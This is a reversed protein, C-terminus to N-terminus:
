MTVAAIDRSGTDEEQYKIRDSV